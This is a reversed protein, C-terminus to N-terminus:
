RFIKTLELKFGNLVVSNLVETAQAKKHLQFVHDKLIHVEANQAIPDIIMYEKVGYKEYIDKKQRLDYYANSPSLIEIVLDPAGKIKDKVVDQLRENLIFIIDPQVISGEDFHVDTPAYYWKGKRGHEIGFLIIAESIEFLVNQHILSPSPSMVLDHNILQFPAGEELMEYDAATYKKKDETILM